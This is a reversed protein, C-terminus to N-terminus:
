KKKIENKLHQQETSINQFLIAAHYVCYINHGAVVVDVQNCDKVHCMSGILPTNMCTPHMIMSEFNKDTDFTMSKLTRRHWFTSALKCHCSQDIGDFATSSGDTFIFKKAASPQIKSKLTSQECYVEHSQTEVCFPKTTFKNSQHKNRHNKKLRKKSTSISQGM